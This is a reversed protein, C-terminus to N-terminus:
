KALCAALEAEVRALKDVCSEAAPDPEAAPKPPTDPDAPPGTTEAADPGQTGSTVNDPEDGPCGTAAMLLLIAALHTIARM